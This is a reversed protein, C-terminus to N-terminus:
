DTEGRGARGPDHLWERVLRYRTMTLSADRYYDLLDRLPDALRQFASLFAVVVGVSTEGEIVLYGGYSLVALPALANLGNVTLRAMGKWWTIDVGLCRLRWGLSVFTEDDEEMITDNLTRRQSVRKESLENIHAQVRPVIYLQPLLFPVSLLALVPETFAMYGILGLITGGKVALDSYANGSFVAIAEIEPGLVSVRAGGTDHETCSKKDETREYIRVRAANLVDQAVASRVARLALKAARHAVIVALYLACLTVLAALNQDEIAGDIIRRQLEVPALEMAAVFLAIAILVVQQRASVSWIFTFLSQCVPANPDPEGAGTREHLISPPAFISM